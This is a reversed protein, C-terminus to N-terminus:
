PIISHNSLHLELHAGPLHKSMPDRELFGKGEEKNGLRALDMPFNLNIFQTSSPYLFPFLFDM